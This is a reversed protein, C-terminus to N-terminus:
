DALPIIESILEPKDFDYKTKLNLM